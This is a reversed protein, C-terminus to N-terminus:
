YIKEKRAHMDCVANLSYTHTTDEMFSTVIKKKSEEGKKRVNNGKFNDIWKVSACKVNTYSQTKVFIKILNIGSKYAMNLYTKLM